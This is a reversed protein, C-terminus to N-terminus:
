YSFCVFLVVCVYITPERDSRPELLYGCDISKLLFVFFMYVWTYGLKVTYFHPDVHYVKQISKYEQHHM